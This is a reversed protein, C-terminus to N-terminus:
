KGTEQTQQIINEVEQETRFLKEKCIQLLSAAREIEKALEDIDIEGNEIKELIAEIENTAERYSIDKKGM